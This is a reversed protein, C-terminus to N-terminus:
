EMPRNSYAQQLWGPVEPDAECLSTRGLIRPDNCRISSKRWAAWKYGRSYLRFINLRNGTIAQVFIMQVGNGYKVLLYDGPNIEGPEIRFCNQSYSYRSYRGDRTARVPKVRKQIIVRDAAKIVLEVAPRVQEALLPNVLQLDVLRKSLAAAAQSTNPQAYYLNEWQECNRAPNRAGNIQPTLDLMVAQLQDKAREWHQKALSLENM